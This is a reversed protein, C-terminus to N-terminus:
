RGDCTRMWSPTAHKKEFQREPANPPQVSICATCPCIKRWFFLFVPREWSDFLLQQFYLKRFLRKVSSFSWGSYINVLNREAIGFLSSFNKTVGLTSWTTLQCVVRGWFGSLHMLQGEVVTCVRCNQWLPLLDTRFITTLPKSINSSKNPKEGTKVKREQKMSCVHLLPDSFIMDANKSQKLSLKQVIVYLLLRIEGRKVHHKWVLCVFFWLFEMLNQSPQNRIRGVIHCKYEQLPYRGTARNKFTCFSRTTEITHSCIIQSFMVSFQAGSTFCKADMFSRQCHSFVMADLQNNRDQITRSTVLPHQLVFGCLPGIHSEVNRKNLKQVTRRWTIEAYGPWYALFTHKQTNKEDWCGFHM